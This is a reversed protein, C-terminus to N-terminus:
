VAPESLTRACDAAVDAFRGAGRSVVEAASGVGALAFGRDPEEWCFWRDGALRSAFALAAPDASEVEVTASM